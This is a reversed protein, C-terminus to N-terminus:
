RCVRETKIIKIAIETKGGGDTSVEHIMNGDADYTDIQVGVPGTTRM